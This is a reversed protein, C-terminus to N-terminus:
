RRGDGAGGSGSHGVGDQEDGGARHLLPQSDYTGRTSEKGQKGGGYVDVLYPMCKAGDAADAAGVLCRRPRVRM